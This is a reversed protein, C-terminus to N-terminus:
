EQYNDMYHGFDALVCDEEPPLCSQFDIFNSVYDSFQARIQRNLVAPVHAGPAKRIGALFRGYCGTVNGFVEVSLVIGSDQIARILPRPCLLHRSFYLAEATSEEEPQTGDHGLLIHGLERALSRQLMYYPLRQNYAVFYRLKGRIEKVFTVADQNESGFMTVLNSRDLGEQDAMETFSFVLVGPISKLIPMPIVPASSIGYKILTEAAKVSAFDYDPNM